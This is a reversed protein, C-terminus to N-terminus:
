DILGNLIPALLTTDNPLGSPIEVFGCVGAERFHLRGKQDFIALTPILGENMYKESISGNDMGFIWDLEIGNNEFFEDRFNNVDQVTERPDIDVSIIELDDRSYNEYIKKLEKMMTRCPGCWTAWMDLVVVKGRYDKLSKISGDLATFTFNDGIDKENNSVDKESPEFCGSLLSILFIFLILFSIKVKKM